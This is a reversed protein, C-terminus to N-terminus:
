GQRVIRHHQRHAPVLQALAVQNGRHHAAVAGLHALLEDVDGDDLLRHRLGADDDVIRRHGGLEAQHFAVEQALELGLALAVDVEGAIQPHLLLHRDLLEEGLRGDAHEGAQMLEDAALDRAREIVALELGLEVGLARAPVLARGDVQRHDV